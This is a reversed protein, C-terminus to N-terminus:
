AVRLCQFVVVFTTGCYFFFNKRGLSSWHGIACRPGLNLSHCQQRLQCTQETTAMFDRPWTRSFPPRILLQVRPDTCTELALYWQCWWLLKFVRQVHKLRQMGKGNNGAVLRLLPRWQGRMPLRTIDISKLMLVATTFLKMQGQPVRKNYWWSSQFSKLPKSHVDIAVLSSVWGKSNSGPERHCAWVRQVDHQFFARKQPIEFRSSGMPIWLKNSIKHCSRLITSGVFCMQNPPQLRPRWLHNWPSRPTMQNASRRSMSDIDLRNFGNDM